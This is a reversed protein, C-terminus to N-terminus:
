FRTSLTIGYTAPEGVTQSVADGTYIVGTSYFENFINRGWIQIRWRDDDAAIGGILGVLAYSPIEFIKARGFTSNTKSRYSVDGGFFANVAPSIPFEYRANGAFQWKPAHPFSEGALDIVNGVPDVAGGIAPGRRVESNVYTGAASIYLGRAPRVEVQAEAGIVRSKPINIESAQSGFPPLPVFGQIQKNRYDYYFTAASVSVKRNLLSAKVGGEAALVSEQTVPKFQGDFIGSTPVFAGAKYGKTVNGYVLLDSSPKWNLGARWSVNDENLKDRLTDPRSFQVGTSTQTAVITVCEGPASIPIPFLSGIAAALLGDGYDGLCGEFDRKSKTYRGGIQATLSSTLPIDVSGFAAYTKVHQDAYFDLSNFIIGNLSFYTVNVDENFLYDLTHDKEYNVGAIFKIGNELNLAGRLEQTFTNIRPSSGLEQSSFNTGTGNVISRTNKYNSYATISTLTLAEDVEYDARSSFQYYRADNRYPRGQVWDALRPNKPPKPFNEITYGIPLGGPLRPRFEIFQYAQTDSKDIWANAALSLKLRESVDLDILLRGQTFDRRGHRGDPGSPRTQSIQWGDRSEHKGSLRVRVADSIPGSVFAQGDIQNFRGYTLDFGAEVERTPKSAIYNIAGGTSNQGFLTGQPGKLVEVREVDFGAGSSMALYPVPVQDVYVAVAPSIGAGIDFVGVGRLYLVPTGYPAKQFTLGPVIKSLDEPRTIGQRALQEGTAAAISIPVEMLRESRKQATVIIEGVDGAQPANQPQEQAAAPSLSLAAVGVAALLQERVHIVSM